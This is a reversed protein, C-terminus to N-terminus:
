PAESNPLSNAKGVFTPSPQIAKNPVFVQSIVPVVVSQVVVSRMVVSLMVVSLLICKNAVSLM